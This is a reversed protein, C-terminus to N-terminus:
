FSNFEGLGPTDRLEYKVHSQRNGFGDDDTSQPLVAVVDEDRSRKPQTVPNDVRVQQGNPAAVTNKPAVGESDKSKNVNQYKDFPAPKKDSGSEGNIIPAERIRGSELDVQAEPPRPKAAVIQGSDSANTEGSLKPKFGTKKAWSSSPMATPEQVPPWPGPRPRRPPDTNAM